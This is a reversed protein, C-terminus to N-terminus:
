SGLLFNTDFDKNGNPYDDVAEVFHVNKRPRLYEREQEFNWLDPVFLFNIRDSFLLNIKDGKM